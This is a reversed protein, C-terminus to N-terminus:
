IIKPSPVHIIFKGGKKIFNKEKKFIEDKFNWAGLFVVDINKKNLKKYKKILIKSGPLYRNIKYSTTDYFYDIFKNGIKCYNLVTCSKATAGYGIINLKKKKLKQFINLLKIKSKKVKDAFIKYTSIKNLGFKLEKKIENKVSKKVTYLKNIKKKIFYRNSGGHTTTNQVDFIELDFNNLINKLAITSFVYIHECYFQDYAVNKICKLLSPDELILVGKESLSYNIARFIENLSKIHSLTNASYILEAKKNITIKRALKMSWYESYTTYNINKTLKALNKCPEVGVINKKNFNKMFVGDNSGIEIIFNPKFRKKVKTTLDKFSKRMTKSESSKYPYMNNFMKEKPVTNVISVLYNKKNFAVELKFKKEKHNLNKKKLYSNALPQLGLNLFKIM